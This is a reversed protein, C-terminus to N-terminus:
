FGLLFCFRTMDQLLHHPQVFFKVKLCLRYPPSGALQKVINNRLNLWLSEGKAGNYQLGFYDVEVLGLEM